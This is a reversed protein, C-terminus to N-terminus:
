QYYNIAERYQGLSYYVNGINGLRICEGSRDGTEQSIVLAKKYHDPAERHRGLSYYVNGINGLRNGEIRKDGVRQAIELARRNYEIAQEYQGLNRYATAINALTMGLNEENGPTDILTLGQQYYSIAQEYQGLTLCANGLNSLHVGEAERNQLQQAVNVATELWKTREFAPRRLALINRGDHAYLHCLNAADNNAAMQDAAWRWGQQIQGWDHDFQILASDIAAGGQYYQDNVTRLAHLYYQAHRAQAQVIKNTM